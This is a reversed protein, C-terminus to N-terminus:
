QQSRIWFGCGCVWASCLCEHAVCDVLWCRQAPLLLLLLVSWKWICRINSRTLPRQLVLTHFYYVIRCEEVFRVFRRGSLARSAQMVCEDVWRVLLSVCRIQPGHLGLVHVDIFRFSICVISLFMAFLVYFRFQLNLFQISHLLVRFAWIFLIFFAEFFISTRHKTERKRCHVCQHSTCCRRSRRSITFVAEATREDICESPTFQRVHGLNFQIAFHNVSYSAVVVCEGAARERGTEGQTQLKTFEVLACQPHFQKFLQLSKKGGHIKSVLPSFLPFWKM